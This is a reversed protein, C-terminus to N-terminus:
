PIYEYLQQERSSNQECVLKGPLNSRTKRPVEDSQGTGKVKHAAQATQSCKESDSNININEYTRIERRWLEGDADADADVCRRM